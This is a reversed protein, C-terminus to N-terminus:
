KGPAAANEVLEVRRNKARGDDTKNPAVPSAFSVGVPTLRDKGVSFRTTLAAVVAIARRESLDKNFSFSGVNDTHGVVLLSLAANQKMLAAIQQLTADSEPKVDAKNFDFYIGYLAVRGTTDISRAMEGADVTVMKKERDKAEIIDVVVVTRGNLGSCPSNRNSEEVAYTHVSVHASSQPLQAAIFRQDSIRLGQVCGGAPSQADMPREHPYLYMALSMNGGGGSRSREPSGGCEAGKCEFLVQGGKSKIEDQYNRLVELTSREAPVLYVIRTHTGELAQRKKPEFVRNNHAGRKEPVVPELPSLPLTFEDFSKRDYAVIFSGDYRKLVPSDKSGTVDTTPTSGTQAFTAASWIAVALATRALM